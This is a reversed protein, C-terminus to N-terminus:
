TFAPVHSVVVNLKGRGSLPFEDVFKVEFTVSSLDVKEVKPLGELINALLWSRIKGEDVDEKAKKVYIEVFNERKQM